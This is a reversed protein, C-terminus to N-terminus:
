KGTAWRISQAFRSEAVQQLDGSQVFKQAIQQPNPRPTVLRAAGGSAAAQRASIAANLQDVTQELEGITADTDLSDTELRNVKSTINELSGPIVDTVAINLQNSLQNLYALQQQMLAIQQEATQAAQNIYGGFEQKTKELEDATNQADKVQGVLDKIMDEDAVQMNQIAAISQELEAIHEVSTGKESLEQIQKELNEAAEKSVGPMTKVADLKATIDEIQEQSAQEREAYAQGLKGVEAKQQEGRKREKELEGKHMGLEQGQTKGSQTAQDIRREADNLEDSLDANQQKQKKLEKFLALAVQQEPPIGQVKNARVFAQMQEYDNSDEVIVERLKM